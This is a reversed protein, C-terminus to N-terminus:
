GRGSAGASLKTGRKRYAEEISDVIMVGAQDSVVNANVNVVIPQRHVAPEGGSGGGGVPDASRMRDINSGGGGRGASGGASKNMSAGAGGMAMGAAIEATGVGILGSASGQMGPIFANAMGTFLWRTGEAVLADGTSELIAGTSMKQGKALAQFANIGQSAVLQMGGVMMQNRQRYRAMAEDDLKKYAAEEEERLAVRDEKARAWDEYELQQANKRQIAREELDRTRAEREAAINQMEFGRLQASSADKRQMTEWETDPRPKGKGPEDFTSLASNIKAQEAANEATWSQADADANAASELRDARNAYWARRDPTLSNDNAAISRAAMAESLRSDMGPSIKSYESALEELSKKQAETAKTLEETKATQADTYEGWLAIAAVLGGVALGAPGGIIGTLGDAALGAKGLAGTFGGLVPTASMLAGSVKNIASAHQMLAKSNKETVPAHAATARNAKEAAIAQADAAEQARRREVTQLKLAATHQAITSNDKAVVKDLTSFAGALKLVQGAGQETGNVKVDFDVKEAGSM